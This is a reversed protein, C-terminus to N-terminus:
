EASTFIRLHRNNYIIKLIGDHLVKRLVRFSEFNFKFVSEFSRSYRRFNLRLKNIM